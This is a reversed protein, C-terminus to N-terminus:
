RDQGHIGAGRDRGDQRRGRGGRQARLEVGRGPRSGALGRPAADHKRRHDRDRGCDRDGRDRRRGERGQDERRRRRGRARGARDDQGTGPVTRQPCRLRDRFQGRRCRGQHGVDARRDPGGGGRPRGKQRSEVPGEQAALRDGGAHRRRERRAGAQLGDHRRRHDRSPGQGDGSHNNGDNCDKAQRPSRPAAKAAEGGDAM